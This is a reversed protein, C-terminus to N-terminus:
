TDSVAGDTLIIINRPYGNILEQRFIDELPRLIITGGFNAEM